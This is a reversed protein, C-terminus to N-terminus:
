VPLELQGVPPASAHAPCHDKGPGVFIACNDCLPEDCTRLTTVTMTILPRAAAEVIADCLKTAENGCACRKTEYRRSGCVIAVIGDVHVTSCKM